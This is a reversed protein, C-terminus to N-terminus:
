FGGFRPVRATRLLQAGVRTQIAESSALLSDLVHVRRVFRHLGHEWTWGIAGCVQQVHRASLLAARGALAKALESALRDQEEWATALALKAASIAVQVDALRHKVSQFSGIARGFQHRERVHDIGIALMAEAVGVLEHALARLAIAILPDCDVGDRAVELESPDLAARVRLLGLEPDLGSIAAVDLGVREPALQVVARNRDPGQVFSSLLRATGAGHLAFGDIRESPEKAPQSAHIDLPYVVAHSVDPVRGLAHLIVLDLARSSALARGQEEFFVGVADCREEALLEVWGTRVLASPVDQAATVSLLERLSQRMMERTESDM